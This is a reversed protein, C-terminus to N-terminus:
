KKWPRKVKKQLHLFGSGGRRCITCFSIHQPRKYIYIDWVFGLILYLYGLYICLRSPSLDPMSMTTHSYAIVFHYGKCFFFDTADTSSNSDSCNQNELQLFHNVDWKQASEEEQTDGEPYAWGEGTGTWVSKCWSGWDAALRLGGHSRCSSSSSRQFGCLYEPLM